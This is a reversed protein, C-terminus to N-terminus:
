GWGFLFSRKEWKRTRSHLEGEAKLSLDGQSLALGSEYHQLCSSGMKIM